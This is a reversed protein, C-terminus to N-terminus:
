GYFYSCTGRELSPEEQGIKRPVLEPDFSTLRSHQFIQYVDWCFTKHTEIKDGFMDHIKNWLFLLPQLIPAREVLTWDLHHLPQIRPNITSVVFRNVITNMPTLFCCVYSYPKYGLRYPRYGLMQSNLYGAKWIIWLKKKKAFCCECIEIMQFIKGLIIM